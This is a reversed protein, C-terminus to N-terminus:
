YMTLGACHAFHTPFKNRYTTVPLQGSDVAEAHGTVNTESHYSCLHTHLPGTSTIYSGNCIYISTSNMLLLNKFEGHHSPSEQCDDSSSVIVQDHTSAFLNGHEDEVAHRLSQFESKLVGSTYLYCLM